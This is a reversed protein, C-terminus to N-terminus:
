VFLRIFLLGIHLLYTRIRNIDFADPYEKHQREAKKKLTRLFNASYIYKNVGNDISAGSGVADYPVSMTVAGHINRETAAKDGLEGLLKLSVNGGLSFGSLYIKRNPYRRMLEAALQDADATFGVHYAGPRKNEEGSCGRFNFLACSFGQEIYAECMKTVASGGSNSELGHLIIVIPTMAHADDTGPSFHEATFEVDFFDGDPTDFRERLVSFSREQEKGTVVKTLAGTGVITQWHNNKELGFWGDAAKFDSAAFTNVVTVAQSHTLARRVPKGTLSDIAESFPQLAMSMPLETLPIGHRNSAQWASAFTAGCTIVAIRWVM